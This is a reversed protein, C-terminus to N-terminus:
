HLGRTNQLIVKRPATKVAAQFREQQLKVPEPGPQRQARGRTMVGIMADNDDM